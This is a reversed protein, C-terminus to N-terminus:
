RGGERACHSRGRGQQTGHLSINAENETITLTM